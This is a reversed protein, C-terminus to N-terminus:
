FAANVTGPDDQCEIFPRVIGVLQGLHKGKIVFRDAVVQINQSFM